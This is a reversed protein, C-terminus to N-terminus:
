WRRRAGGIELLPMMDYYPVTAPDPAVGVDLALIGSTADVLETSVEGVGLEVTEERDLLRGGISVRAPGAGSPLWRYVGPVVVDFSQRSGAEGALRTGAVEVTGRYPVYHDRWFSQVASPFQALRHTRVIFSIPRARFEALFDATNREGDHKFFQLQVRDRLFVPFPDPDRRCILAGDPHFGRLAPALGEVFSLSERQVRQTDELTEFRYPLAVAALMACAVVGAARAGVPVLERAPSWGVGIGVAAFVGLTIWFYPFAAAHFWGIASGLLVVIMALGLPRLAASKTRSARALALTVVGFLVLQPILTPLMSQYVRFGVIQRYWRFIALGREFTVATHPVFFLPVVLHYVGLAVLVGAAFACARVLVGRWALARDMHDVGAAVVLVLATVYIAKQSCLYGTACLAGAIAAFAVRRRRAVLAVGGWVALMVAPQDTRVQLSWRMFVPVLALTATGIAAAYLARPAGRAASRLLVFVGALMGFTFGVWLLRTTLLVDTTSACGDAFPVLLLVVLGPRGGGDLVGTRATRSARAILAYEDWNAGETFVAAVHLVGYALAILVLALRPDFTRRSSM